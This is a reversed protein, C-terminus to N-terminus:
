TSIAAAMEALAGFRASVAMASCKSLETLASSAAPIVQHPDGGELRDRGGLELVDEPELDVGVLPDHPEALGEEHRPRDLGVDVLRERRPQDAAVRARDVPDGLVEHAVEAEARAADLHAAVRREVDGEPVDQPLERALGDRLQEAAERTGRDAGVVGAGARDVHAAVLPLPDLVVADPLGSLPEVVEVAEELAGVVEGLLQQGLADRGHLDPGEVARGRLGVAEGDGGVVEPGREGREVLDALAHAVPHVDHDLEVRHPLEEGGHLDGARERRVVREPVLVRDLHVAEARERAVGLGRGHRDARRLRQRRSPAEAVEQLRAGRPDDHEVERPAAPDRLGLLDGGHHLGPVQRDGRVVAGPRHHQGGRRVQGEVRRVGEDLLAHAGIVPGPVSVEHRRHRRDLVAEDGHWRPRAEAELEGGVEGSRNVTVVRMEFSAQAVPGNTRGPLFCQLSQKGGGRDREAESRDGREGGVRERGDEDAM